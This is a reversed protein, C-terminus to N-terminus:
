RGSRQRVIFEAALKADDREMGQMVLYAYRPGDDRKIADHLRNRPGSCMSAVVIGLELPGGEQRAAERARDRLCFALEKGEPYDMLPKKQDAATQCSALAAAIAAFMIKRM